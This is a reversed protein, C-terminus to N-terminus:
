CSKKEKETRDTNAQLINFILPRAIDRWTNKM